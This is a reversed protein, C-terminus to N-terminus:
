ALRVFGRMDEGLAEAAELELAPEWAHHEASFMGDGDAGLARWRTSLQARGAAWVLYLMPLMWIPRREM